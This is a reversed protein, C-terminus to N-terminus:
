GKRNIMGAIDNSIATTVILIAIATIVIEAWLITDSPEHLFLCQGQLKIRLLIYLIEVLAALGVWKSIFDIFRM